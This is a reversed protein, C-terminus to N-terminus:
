FKDAPTYNIGEEHDHVWPWACSPKHYNILLSWKFYNPLKGIPPWNYGNMDYRITDLYHVCALQRSLNPSSRDMLSTVIYDVSWPCPDRVSPCASVPCALSKINQGISHMAHVSLLVRSLAVQVVLTCWIFTEGSLCDVNSAMIVRGHLLM